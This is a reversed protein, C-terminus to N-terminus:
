GTGGNHLALFASLDERCLLKQRGFFFLCGCDHRDGFRLAADDIIGRWVAVFRSRHKWPYDKSRRVRSVELQM